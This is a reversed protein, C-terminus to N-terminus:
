DTKADQASAQPQAAATRGASTWDQSADQGTAADNDASGAVATTSTQTVPGNDGPSDIRVSILINTPQADTADASTTAAQGTSADQASAQAPGAAPPAEVADAAYATGTAIALSVALAGFGAAAFRRLRTASSMSASFCRLMNREQNGLNKIGFTRSM